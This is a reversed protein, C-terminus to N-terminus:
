RQENNVSHSYNTYEYANTSQYRVIFAKRARFLMSEVSKFSMQFEKAIRSVPWEEIYKLRLLRQYHPTLRSFAQEIKLVFLKEDLKDEPTTLLAVLPEMRPFQSFLIRKINKRRYYDIVKRKAISCLFTNLTCRFTFDRFAELSAMLTDQTLEEVDKEDSVRQRIFSTLKPKYQHYFLRLLKESGCLIGAVLQRDEIIKNTEHKM